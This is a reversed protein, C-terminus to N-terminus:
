CVKRGTRTSLNCLYEKLERSFHERGFRFSWNDCTVTAPLNIRAEAGMALLDWLPIIVTRVKSAFALEIISKCMSAGDTLDCEVDLAECQEALDEKYTELAEEGLEDIFGRLPMNDHTGTYCVYNETYNAPKHENEPNGDFAFELIKMGPYGVNKMLRYVGEDLVGLDEAVVSLDLKDKFFEEKPG